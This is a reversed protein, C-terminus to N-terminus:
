FGYIGELVRLVTGQAGWTKSEIVNGRSLVLEGSYGPMGLAEATAAEADFLVPMTLGFEEEVVRCYAGDPATNTANGTVIFWMAFGHERYKDWIANPADSAAYAQCTSCTAAFTYLLAATRPCLDRLAHETGACDRLLVEPAVEGPDLGVAGVPPCSITGEGSADDSGCATLWLGFVLASIFRGPSQMDTGSRALRMTESGKASGGAYCVGPTAFDHATM